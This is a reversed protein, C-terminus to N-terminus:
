RIQRWSQRGSASQPINMQRGSMGGDSQQEIILGDDRSPDELLIMDSLSSKGVSEMGQDELVGPEDMDLFRDGVGILEMLWSNGGYGCPDDTPLFSPFIVRDFLLAAQDLVREGSQINLDLLWGHDYEDPYDNWWGSPPEGDNVSRPNGAQVTKVALDSRGLGSSGDDLVGYFSQQQENTLDGFTLYRGTGFYVMYSSGGDDHEIHRHRGLTPAATIPQSTGESDTASFLREGDSQFDFRWMNGLLDGAYAYNASGDSAPMVAVGSLGNDGTVGTGYFSLSDSAIDYVALKAEGGDSNYGNGFVIAYDGEASMPGILPAGMVNGLDAPRDEGTWDFIVQPQEGTVDLAFIGKGGAGLSGVLIDRGDVRATTLPGDVTYTHPNDSRGYNTESLNALKPYVGAPVYSFVPAGSDADLAHLMGDNAGVYVRGEHHQPASNIVDGMVRERERLGSVVEGKMWSIRDGPTSSDDELTLHEVQADTLNALSFDVTSGDSYTYVSRLQGFTMTDSTTWQPNEADFRGYGDIDFSRVEGTWDDTYFLAQFLASDDALRTASTAVAAAAGTGSAVEDGVEYLAERLARPDTAFYYSEAESGAIQAATPEDDENLDDPYGGWKAAYYLPLELLDASGDGIEFTKSSPGANPADCFAFNANEEDVCTCPEGEPCGDGWVFNNIGSHVHFGDDETGGVIYGFGMVLSAAQAVVQTTITVQDSSKFEYDIIGWADFDYDGGQESDEWNVYLRGGEEESLTPHDVFKFDVISCNTGNDVRCAPLITIEKGSPTPVKAEPVAPALSVGYTKVKTKEPAGTIQLGDKRAAYALGGIHYGGELRPADPCTGHVSSLSSVTKPTCLQNNDGGAAGVFYRGGHIGEAAGIANTEGSVNIGIDSAGSLSDTDYSSTSANFQLVNTAACYNEDNLPAVWEATVLESFRGSDDVNFAGTPDEGALYRLSELYIESQPNGWNSCDGDDFTTLGWDCSDGANYRGDSHEYGFIRQANLAGIISENNDPTVFQGTELNVEDAINGVNKRLVGGSRNGEYSGTLLGFHIRGDEGYKQLFGTPKLEGNEYEVCEADEGAPSGCVEVRVALEDLRHADIPNDNYASIGSPWRPYDEDHTDSFPDQAATLYRINGNSGGEALANNRESSWACQYRENTAWLSYNGRAVRVLPPADIDQSRGTDAFTTNCFTVGHERPDDSSTNNSYPTLKSLDDGNYYKAFSHADMPLYSRELVTEDVDDVHRYGGYLLKRVADIRTMTAWNLFNGSWEDSGECYKTSSTSGPRFVGGSHSYCLNPDFYGFYDVEHTYTTNPRGDETLDSYDDYLKFYLQHDNSVNLMMIPPVPNQYFLPSQALEIASVPHAAGLSMLAGALAVGLKKTWNNGYQAHQIAM